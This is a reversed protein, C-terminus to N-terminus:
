QDTPDYQEEPYNMDTSMSSFSGQAASCLPLHAFALM